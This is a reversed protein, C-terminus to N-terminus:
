QATLRARSRCIPGHEVGDIHVLPENYRIRHVADVRCYKQGGAIWHCFDLFSFNMARRDFRGRTIGYAIIYSGEDLCAWKNM